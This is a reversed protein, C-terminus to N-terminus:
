KVEKKTKRNYFSLFFGIVMVVVGLWLVNIYPFILAKMVIYDDKSNNQKIAIDATEEKPNIKAFQMILQMSALTDNIFVEEQGHILYIPLAEIQKGKLNYVSLKAGVAIDGAQTTINRKELQTTFGEFIAFGNNVFISDGKKVITHKFSNTDNKKSPDIVSTVYTFIDKHIYHKSAPNAILGSKGKSNIFADPYLNFAEVVKQTASDIVEYHVKFFTRPDTTSTSDGQYTVLYPGMAIPTNRFLLVNEQSEKVKEQMTKQGLDIFVGMTNISLVEKKFSSLVIGLIVLAFGLHSIAPGMKKFVGKQNYIAYYVSAIVGFCAAYLLLFVPITNITEVYAIICTLALSISKIIAFRKLLPKWDSNKFKLFLTSASLFTILIALWIQIANYHQVPDNPPAVEKGSIWKVLPAWVPISTTLIIQISSLFIIFAGIFMWFERSLLAEENEIKPFQKRRYIYLIISPLLVIALVILLHWLLSSGEGTFAHVSTDGLIGTRTLFTSYWIFAYTLVFLILSVGLSRQTAKFIVITHLAAVLLLWPVLSANEVPDWAWYGGFTLSEYAWAGGMMIGLGLVGGAVLSWNIIPKIFNVFEGKWLAAVAYAFPVLTLAFGLFLIPPHIVMWYNQLLENLGNGDKIYQMYDPQAFIPAGQMQNRLLAFPTTGIKISETVYIGLLMTSLCAQIIGVVTMTRAQLSDSKYLIFLGLISHWLMWLLFSGQQGEWFCSLLYKTPLALSSHEYAYHYEFYHNYIIYYLTFFVGWVMIVHVMFLKRAISLWSSSTTPEQLEWKAANFFAFASFLSAVFASIVMLHGLQGPLLHENLFTTNL